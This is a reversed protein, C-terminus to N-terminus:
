KLLQNIKNIKQQLRDEGDTLMSYLLFCRSIFTKRVKESLKLDNATDIFAKYFAKPHESIKIGGSQKIISHVAEMVYANMEHGLSVYDNTPINNVHGVKDIIQDYKKMTMKMWKRSSNTLYDYAHTLEHVFTELIGKNNVLDDYFLKLKKVIFSFVVRNNLNDENNLAFQMIEKTIRGLEDDYIFITDESTSFEGQIKEGKYDSAMLYVIKNNPLKFHFIKQLCDVEDGNFKIQKDIINVVNSKFTNFLNEIIKQIEKFKVVDSKRELLISKLAM